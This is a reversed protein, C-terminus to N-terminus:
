GSETVFAGVTGAIVMALALSAAPFRAISIDRMMPEGFPEFIMQGAPVIEILRISKQADIRYASLVMAAGSSRLRSFVKTATTSLPLRDLAAGRTPRLWDATLMCICLSSSM